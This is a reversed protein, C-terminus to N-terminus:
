KQFVVVRRAFFMGFCVSIMFFVQVDSVVFVGECLMPGFKKGGEFVVVRCFFHWFVCLEKLVIFLKLLDSLFLDLVVFVKETVLYFVDVWVGVLLVFIKPVSFM